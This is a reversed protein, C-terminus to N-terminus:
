RSKVKAKEMRVSQNPEKQRKGSLTVTFLLALLLEPFGVFFVRIDKTVAFIYVNTGFVIALYLWLPIAIVWKQIRRFLRGRLLLVTCMVLAIIIAFLVLLVSFLLLTQWPKPVFSYQPYSCLFGVAGDSIPVHRANPIILATFYCIFCLCGGAIGLGNALRNRERRTFAFYYLIAIALWAGLEAVPMYLRGMNWLTTKNLVFQSIILVLSTM